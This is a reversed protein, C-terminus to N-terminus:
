SNRSYLASSKKVGQWHETGPKSMFKSLVGVAASLDPRSITTVYTLCGIAM